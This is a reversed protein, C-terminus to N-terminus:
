KLFHEMNLCSLKSAKSGLIKNTSM